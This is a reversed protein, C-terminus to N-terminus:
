GLAADDYDRKFGKESNFRIKTRTRTTAVTESESVCETITTTV